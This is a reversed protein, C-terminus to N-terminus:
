NHVQDKGVEVQVEVGAGRLNKVLDIIRPAFIEADGYTM